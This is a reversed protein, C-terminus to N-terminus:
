PTWSFVGTVPDIAAGPPAADLSFRLADEPNPDAATVAVTLTTGEPVTQDAIPDLVPAENAATVQVDDVAPGATSGSTSLSALVLTTTEATATFSWTDTQWGMDSTTHGLVDFSFTQSQGAAEVRLRKVPQTSSAPSGAMSFKVKYQQGPRTAFSQAIGGPAFGDLDMSRAGDAAAWYSGVWDVSEQTVSWGPLETSGEYLWRYGWTPMYPGNEFSGNALLNDAALLAREELPEFRLPTPGPKKSSKCRRPLPRKMATVQHPNM